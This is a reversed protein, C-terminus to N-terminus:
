HPERLSKCGGHSLCNYLLFSTGDSSLSTPMAEPKGQSNVLTIEKISRGFASIPGSTTKDTAFDTGTVGTHDEGSSITAFDALSLPAGTSSCCPDALVWEASSRIANPVMASTTFSKGTTVNTFTVTFLSNAFSVEASIHNGPSVPVSTITVPGQPSFEYWAQYSPTTGICNSFTGTEEVTSSSYGDIGVLFSSYTNSENPCTVAPVIWSGKAQTFSSGTVVYGAWSHSTVATGSQLGNSVQAVAPWVAFVAVLTLRHSLM